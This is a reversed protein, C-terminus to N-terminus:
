LQQLLDSINKDPNPVKRKIIEMVVDSLYPYDLFSFDYNFIYYSIEVMIKNLKMKQIEEPMGSVLEQGDLSIIKNLTEKLGDNFIQYNELGNLLKDLLLSQREIQNLEKQANEIRPADFKEELLEKINLYKELDYLLPEIEKNGRIILRDKIISKQTTSKILEDFSKDTYYILVRTVIEKRGDERAENVKQITSQKETLLEKEKESLQSKLLALSDSKLKLQAQINTREVKFTSLASLDSNLVRITEQLNQLKTQNENNLRSYNTNVKNLSDITIGQKIVRDVLDNQAYSSGIVSLIITVIIIIRM